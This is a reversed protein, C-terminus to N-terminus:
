RSEPKPLGPALTLVGDEMEYITVDIHSLKM